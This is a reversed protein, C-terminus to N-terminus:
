ADRAMVMRYALAVVVATLALFIGAEIGQFAWFRGARQYTLLLHFGHSALCSDTVGPRCAPAQSSTVFPGFNKGNPGIYAGNSLLWAGDPLEGSSPGLPVVTSSPSMFHPRLLVAIVIRVTAFAVLTTAMAPVVRRIAAGIVVGLAVAFVSYAIPVIGQIDFPGPGLRSRGLSIESLSWWTVVSTIAAGWGAAVIIMWLLNSSLWRRRTTCQTWAFGNTGEEFERALLPAGLFLGLLLPVAITLYDITEIVHSENKPLLLLAAALLALCAGAVVLQNRHLRWLVYTM